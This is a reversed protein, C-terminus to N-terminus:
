KSPAVGGVNFVYLVLTIMLAVLGNFTFWGCRRVWRYKHATVEQYFSDIAAPVDKLVAYKEPLLARLASMIALLWFILPTLAILKFWWVTEKPIKSFSIAAIYITMVTGVATIFSKALDDHKEPANSKMEWYKQQFFTQEPNPPRGEQVDSERENM